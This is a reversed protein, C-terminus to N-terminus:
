VDNAIKVKMTFLLIHHNDLHLPCLPLQAPLITTTIVLFEIMQSYNKYLQNNFIIHLKVNKVRLPDSGM